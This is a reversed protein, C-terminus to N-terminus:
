ALMTIIKGSVLFKYFATEISCFLKILVLRTEYIGAMKALCLLTCYCCRTKCM